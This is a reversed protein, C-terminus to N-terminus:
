KEDSGSVSDKKRFDLGEGPYVARDEPPTSQSSAWKGKLPASGELAKSCPSRDIMKPNDRLDQGPVDWSFEIPIGNPDFSYVSLIFGHDMVESVWFGAGELTGKLSWLDEKSNVGISVHDFIFPGKVPVGHDKEEVPEADPWEFFAILDHASIEFFYLRYGKKGLGGVLRLGLLDRWFRITRDMDSTVLALHNIGRYGSM